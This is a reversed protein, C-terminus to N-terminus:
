AKVHTVPCQTVPCQTGTYKIFKSVRFKKPIIVNPVLCMKTAKIHNHLSTVKFARIKQELAALKDLDDERVIKNKQSEKMRLDIISLIKIPYAPQAIQSYKAL